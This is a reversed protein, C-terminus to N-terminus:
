ERVGERWEWPPIPNEESWIGLKKARAEAECDSLIKSDPARERDWWALGACVLSANIDYGETAHYLQVFRGHGGGDTTVWGKKVVYAAAKGDLDTGSALMYRLASLAELGFPQSDEPKMSPRPPYAGYLALYSRHTQGWFIVGVSVRNLPFTMLVADDPVGAPRGDQSVEPVDIEISADEIPGLLYNGEEGISISPCLLCLLILTTRM